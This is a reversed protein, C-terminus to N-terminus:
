SRKRGPDEEVGVLLAQELERIAGAIDSGAAHASVVEIAADRLRKIAQYAEVARRPTRKTEEDGALVLLDEEPMWPTGERPHETM